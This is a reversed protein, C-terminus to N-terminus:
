PVVLGVVNVTGPPVQLSVKAQRLLLGVVPGVDFQRFIRCNQTKCGNSTKKSNKVCTVYCLNTTVIKDVFWNEPVFNAIDHHLQILANASEATLGSRFLYGPSHARNAGRNAWPAARRSDWAGHRGKKRNELTGQKDPSFASPLLKFSFPKVTWCDQHKSCTGTRKNTAMRKDSM